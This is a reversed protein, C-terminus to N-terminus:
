WGKGLHAMRVEALVPNQLFSYPIWCFGRGKALLVFACGWQDGWSNETLVAGATPSNPCQITDDYALLSHMEHGGELAERELNPLPILGNAETQETDFSEYISIGIVGSYDSLICSKINAIVNGVNHYAGGPWEKAAALQAVSPAVNVNAVDFPATQPCWGYGGGGTNCDPVDLSTVVQAGCDGQALTGENKRELYYTFLPDFDPPAKGAKRYLRNGLNTSGEATCCGVTLQNKRNPSLTGKISARSPFPGVARVLHSPFGLEHINPASRHAGIAHGRSTRLAM